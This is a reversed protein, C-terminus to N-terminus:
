GVNEHQNEVEAAPYADLLGIGDDPSSHCGLHPGHLGLLHSFKSRSFM